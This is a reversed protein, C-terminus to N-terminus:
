HPDAALSNDLARPWGRQQRSHNLAWTPLLGSAQMPMSQQGGNRAPKCHTGMLVTLLAMGPADSAMRGTAHPCKCPARHTGEWLAWRM